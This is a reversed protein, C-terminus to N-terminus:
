SSLPQRHPRGTPRGTGGGPPECASLITIM